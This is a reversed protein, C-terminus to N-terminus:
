KAGAPPKVTGYTIMEVITEGGGVRIETKIPLGRSKSIWIRSDSKGMDSEAHSSYVATAEGGINEDGLRKCTEKTTKRAEKAQDMMEQATIPVGHWQGQVQLYMTAGTYIVKTTTGKGKPDTRTMTASYPTKASAFSANLVTDCDDALAPGVWGALVLGLVPVSLRFFRGPTMHM